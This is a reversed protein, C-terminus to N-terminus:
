ATGVTIQEVCLTLGLVLAPQYALVPALRTGTHVLKFSPM